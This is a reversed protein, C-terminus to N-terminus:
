SERTLLTPIRSLTSDGISMIRATLDLAIHGDRALVVVSAHQVANLLNHLVFPISVRPVFLIPSPTSMLATSRTEVATDRSGNKHLSGLTGGLESGVVFPALDVPVQETDGLHGLAERDQSASRSTGSLSEDNHRELQDLDPQLTLM